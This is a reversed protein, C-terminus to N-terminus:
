RAVPTANLITTDLTQWEGRANASQLSVQARRNKNGRPVALSIAIEQNRRAAGQWVVSSSTKARAPESIWTVLVRARRANQHPTVILRANQGTRFALNEENLGNASRLAGTSKSARTKRPAELPLSKQM